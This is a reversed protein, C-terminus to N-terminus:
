FRPRFRFEMNRRLKRRSLVRFGSNHRLVNVFTIGGFRVICKIHTQGDM